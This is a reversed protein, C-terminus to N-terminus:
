RLASSDRDFKNNCRAKTDIVLKYHLYYILLIVIEMFYYSQIIAGDFEIETLDVDTKFVIKIWNGASPFRSFNHLRVHLPITVHFKAYNNPNDITHIKKSGDLSDIPKKGDSIISM